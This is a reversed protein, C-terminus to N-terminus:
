FRQVYFIKSDNLVKSHCKCIIQRITARLASLFLCKGILKQRQSKPTKFYGKKGHFHGLGGEVGKARGWIWLRGFFFIKAIKGM